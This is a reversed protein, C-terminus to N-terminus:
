NSNFIYFFLPKTLSDSLDKEVLHVGWFLKHPADFLNNVSFQIRNNEIAIAFRSKSRTNGSALPYRTILFVYM